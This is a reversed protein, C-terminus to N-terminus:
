TQNKVPGGAKSRNESRFGATATFTSSLPVQRGSLAGPVEPGGRDPGEVPGFEWVLDERRLARLSVERSVM